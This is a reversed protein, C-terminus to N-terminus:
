FHPGLEDEDAASQRAADSFEAAAPADQPQAEASATVVMVVQVAAGSRVNTWVQCRPCWQSGGVASAGLVRRCAHCAVLVLVVAEDAM